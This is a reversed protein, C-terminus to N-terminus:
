KNDKTGTRSFQKITPTLQKSENGYPYSVIFNELDKVSDSARNMFISFVVWAEKHPVKYKIKLLDM